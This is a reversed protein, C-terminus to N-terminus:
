KNLNEKKTFEEYTPLEEPIEKKKQQQNYLDTKEILSSNKIATDYSISSIQRKYIPSDITYVSQYPSNRENTRGIMIQQRTQSNIDHM